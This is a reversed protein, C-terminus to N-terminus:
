SSPLTPCCPIAGLFRSRLGAQKRAATVVQVNGRGVYASRNPGDEDGNEDEDSDADSDLEVDPQL